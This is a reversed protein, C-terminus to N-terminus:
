SNRCLGVGKKYAQELKGPLAEEVFHAKVHLGAAPQKKHKLASQLAKSISAISQPDCYHGHKGFYDIAGGRTSIVVEVGYYAAELSALGVGEYISPLAFVRAHRYLWNLEPKSVYDLIVYKLDQPLDRILRTKELADCPRGCIVLPLGNNACAVALRRVNKRAQTYQSVHLCYTSPLIDGLIVSAERSESTDISIPIIEVREKPVDLCATLLDYEDRSRALCLTSKNNNFKHISPYCWLRGGFTPLKSALKYIFRNKTIDLMPSHIVCLKERNANVIWNPM